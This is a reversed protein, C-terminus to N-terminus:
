ITRVPLFLKEPRCPYACATAHGKANENTKACVPTESLNRRDCYYKCNDTHNQTGKKLWFGEGGLQTTQLGAGWGSADKLLVFM